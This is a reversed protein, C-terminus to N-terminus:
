FVVPNRAIYNMCRKKHVLALELITPHRMQKKAIQQKIKAHVKAGMPTVEERIKIMKAMALDLIKEVMIILIKTQTEEMKVNIVPKLVINPLTGDIIRMTVVEMGACTRAIHIVGM